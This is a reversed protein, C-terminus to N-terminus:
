KTKEVLKTGCYPCEFGIVLEDSNCLLENSCKPCRGFREYAINRDWLHGLESGRLTDEPVRALPIEITDIIYDGAGYVDDIFMEGDRIAKDETEFVARNQISTCSGKDADDEYIDWIWVSKTNNSETLMSPEDWMNEYLKFEEHLKM